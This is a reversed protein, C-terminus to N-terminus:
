DVPAASVAEDLWAALDPLQNSATVYTTAGERRVLMEGETTALERMSRAFGEAAAETSWRALWLAAVAEAEPPGQYVWFRDERWFSALPAEEQQMWDDIGGRRLTSQIVWAGATDAMLLAYGEPARPADSPLRAGMGPDAAGFMVEFSSQPPSDFLRGLGRIGDRRWATVALRTGYTYPFIDRASLLPPGGNMASDEAVARMASVIEDYALRQRGVGQYASSVWLQYLSAEGEIVAKAALSRDSGASRDPTFSLLDHERDQLVHVLEHALTSNAAIDDLPRGRDIMVIEGLAPIYLAVIGALVLEALEEPGPPEPAEAAPATPESTAGDPSPDSPAADRSEETAARAPGDVLKLLQLGRVRSALEDSTYDPGDSAVQLRALAEAPSLLEVDPLESVGIGDGRLCQTLAMIRQQCESELADCVEHVHDACADPPALNWEISPRPEGCAILFCGTLASSLGSFRQM